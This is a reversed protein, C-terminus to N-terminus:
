GCALERACGFGGGARGSVSISGLWDRSIEGAQVQLDFQDYFVNPIPIWQDVKLGGPDSRLVGTDGTETVAM